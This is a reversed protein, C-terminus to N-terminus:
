RRAQRAPGVKRGEEAPLFRTRQRRHIRLPPKQPRRSTLVTSSFSFCGFFFPRRRGGEDGKLHRVYGTGYAPSPPLYANLVAPNLNAKPRFGSAEDFTVGSKIWHRVQGSLKDNPHTLDPDTM